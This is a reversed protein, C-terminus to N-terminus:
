LQLYTCFSISSMEHGHSLFYSHLSFLSNGGRREECTRKEGEESDKGREEGGDATEMSRRHCVNGVALTRSLLRGEDLGEGGESM